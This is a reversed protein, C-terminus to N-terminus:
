AIRREAERTFEELTGNRFETNVYSSTFQYGEDGSRSPNHLCKLGASKLAEYVADTLGRPSTAVEGTVRGVLFMVAAAEAITLTLTVTKETEQVKVVKEVERTTTEIKARAM